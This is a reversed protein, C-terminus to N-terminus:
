PHRVPSRVGGRLRGPQDLPRVRQHRQQRRRPGPCNVADIESALDAPYYDPTEPAIAAFASNFMRIIESSENSVIQRTETDWLTPVTVRATCGPDSLTYLEHLYLARHDTGPVM